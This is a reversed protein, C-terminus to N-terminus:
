HAAEEFSLPYGSRNLLSDMTCQNIHFSSPPIITKTSMAGRKDKDLSLPRSTGERPTTPSEQTRKGSRSAKLTEPDTLSSEPEALPFKYHLDPPTPRPRTGLASTSNITANKKQSSRAKMEAEYRKILEPAHVQNAPEWSDHAPAYGKWRVKYQLTRKKGARRSGVIQEVEFEPEGEIIDPLPEPYNPGHIETEKYPSLLSAHFV